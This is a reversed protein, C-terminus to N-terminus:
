NRPALIRLNMVTNVLAQWRERDQVLQIWEVSRWGTEELYIIIGDVVQEELQGREKQSEWEFRTCKGRREWAHWM